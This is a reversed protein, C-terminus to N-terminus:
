IHLSDANNELTDIGATDAKHYLLVMKSDM